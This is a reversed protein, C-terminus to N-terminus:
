LNLLARAQIVSNPADKAFGDAQIDDAVKQTV